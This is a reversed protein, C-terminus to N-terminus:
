KTKKQSRRGSSRAKSSKLHWLLLAVLIYILVGAVLLLSLLGVSDVGGLVDGGFPTGRKYM